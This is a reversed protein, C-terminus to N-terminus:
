EKLSKTMLAEQYSYQPHSLSLVQAQACGEALFLCRRGQLKWILLLILRKDEAGRARIQPLIEDAAGLGPSHIVDLWVIVLGGWATRALLVWGWAQAPGLHSM